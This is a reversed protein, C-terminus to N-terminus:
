AYTGFKCRLHLAVASASVGLCLSLKFEEWGCAKVGQVALIVAVELKFISGTEWARVGGRNFFNTYHRRVTGTVHNYQFLLASAFLVLVLM